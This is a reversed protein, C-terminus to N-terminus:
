DPYPSLDKSICMCHRCAKGYWRIGNGYDAYLKVNEDKKCVCKRDKYTKWNEHVEKETEYLVPLAQSVTGSYEFFLKYYDKEFLVFGIVHSM